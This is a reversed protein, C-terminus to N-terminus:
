QLNPALTGHLHPNQLTLRSGMATNTRTTITVFNTCIQHLESLTSSTTYIQQPNPTACGLSTLELSVFITIMLM